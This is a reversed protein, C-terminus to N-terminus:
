VLRVVKKQYLTKRHMGKLCKKCTRHLRDTLFLRGCRLCKLMKRRRNLDLASGKPSQVAM